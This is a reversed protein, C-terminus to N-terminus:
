RASSAGSTLVRNTLFLVLGKLEREVGEQLDIEM